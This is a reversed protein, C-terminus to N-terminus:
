PLKGSDPVGEVVIIECVVANKRKGINMLTTFSWKKKQQRSNLPYYNKPTRRKEDDKM